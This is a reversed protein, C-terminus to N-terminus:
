LQLAFQGSGRGCPEGGGELSQAQVDVAKELLDELGDAALWAASERLRAFADVLAHLKQAVEIAGAGRLLLRRVGALRTTLDGM